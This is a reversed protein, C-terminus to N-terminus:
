YPFVCRYMAPAILEARIIWLIALLILFSWDIGLAPPVVRRIPSLVPEVVMELYRSWSGRLDPVWSLVAYVFLVLTYLWILKDLIPLAQCLAASV